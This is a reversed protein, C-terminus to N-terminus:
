DDTTIISDTQAALDEDATVIILCKSKKDALYRMIGLITETDDDNLGQTPEDALIISADCSLARALQAKRQNLQSLQEVPTDFQDDPFRVQNLLEAALVPMPKLFNRGSVDMTLVINESATLESRLNFHEFLVGINHRRFENPEMEQIDKGHFTITGHNPTRMGSGLAIVARREDDSRILVSQVRSNYFSWDVKNLVNYREHRLTYTVKNFALIPYQEFRAKRLHRIRTNIKQSVVHLSDQSLDDSEARALSAKGQAADIPQKAQSSASEKPAAADLAAPAAPDDREHDQEGDQESSASDSPASDPSASDNSLGSGGGLATDEETDDDEFVISFNVEEPAETADDSDEAIADASEPEEAIADASEPEEPHLGESASDKEQAPSGTDTTGTSTAGTNDTTELSDDNSDHTEPKM